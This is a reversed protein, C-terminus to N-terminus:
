ITLNRASKNKIRKSAELRREERYEMPNSHYKGLELLEKRLSELYNRQDRVNIWSRERKSFLRDRYYRPLHIKSSGRMAYTKFGSRHWELVNPSFYNSGLGGYLRGPMKGRSQVSFPAVRGVRMYIGKSNVLYKCCYGISAENVQGVHILGKKWSQNLAQEPISGFFIIHYHPRYTHSGYEGVAFYRFSFGRKRLRKFFKQLDAVVLQSVGNIFTLENDAYTLTVFSSDTWARLEYELRFSWDSRKTSCCFGCKGCPVEIDRDSLYLPKVCEM